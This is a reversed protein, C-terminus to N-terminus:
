LLYLSEPTTVLIDSPDKAFRRRADAPTDGTRAAVAIERLERGEAEATRRIGALPARLNREVDYTLAKLPSVYLVRVSRREATAEATVPSAFLRDLCWLFAALTKGSGTPAHLLTHTGAAIAPWGLEQARTPAAFSQRFWAATPGSFAALPDDQTTPSM